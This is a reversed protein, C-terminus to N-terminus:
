TGQGKQRLSEGKLTSTLFATPKPTSFLWSLVSGAMQDGDCLGAQGTLWGAACPRCFGESVTDKLRSAFLEAQRLPVGEISTSSSRCKSQM